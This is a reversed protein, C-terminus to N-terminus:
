LSGDISIITKLQTREFHGFVPSFYVGCHSHKMYSCISAPDNAIGRKCFFGSVLSLALIVFLKQAEDLIQPITQITRVLVNEHCPWFVRAPQSECKQYFIYALIKNM